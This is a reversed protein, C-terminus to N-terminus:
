SCPGPTSGPKLIVLSSSTVLYLRDRGLEYTVARAPLAPTAQYSAIEPLSSNRINVIQLAKHGSDAALFAYCAGADVDLSVISGSALHYLPAPSLPPVGGRSVDFFVMNSSGKAQGLVAASGSVALSLGPYSGTINFGEGAAYVPSGSHSVNVVGLEATPNSTALYASTGALAVANVDGGGATSGLFLLSGSQSIDFSYFQNEGPVGSAKAGVYLVNGAVLLSSGLANGPLNYSAVKDDASLTMPSSVDFVQLEAEPDSTLVYLRKGKIGAARGEVGAGLSFAPDIRGPHVTDLVDILMLGSSGVIFAVSGGVAIGGFGPSGGPAYQGEVVPSSWDGTPRLTRWDTLETSLLVSGTRTGRERWQTQALLKVWGNGLASVVLSSTFADDNVSAGTLTWTGSQLSVGHTGATLSSFNGDRVSRSAELMRDALYVARVRNGSAVTGEQGNLLVLSIGILFLSFVAIGVMAELLLFGPRSREGISPLRRSQM